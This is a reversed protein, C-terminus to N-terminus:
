RGKQIDNEASRRRLPEVATVWHLVGALGFLVACCVGVVCSDWLTLVGHAHERINFWVWFPLAGVLV